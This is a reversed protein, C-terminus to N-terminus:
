TPINFAEDITIIETGPIMNEAEIGIFTQASAFTSLLLLVLMLYYKMKM